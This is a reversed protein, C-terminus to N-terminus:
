LEDARHQGGTLAATAELKQKDGREEERKRKKIRALSSAIATWSGPEEEGFLAFCEKRDRV